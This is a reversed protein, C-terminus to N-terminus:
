KALRSRTRGRYPFRDCRASLEKEHPGYCSGLWRAHSGSVKAVLRVDCMMQHRGADTIYKKDLWSVYLQDTASSRRVSAPLLPIAAIMNHIGAVIQLTCLGSGVQDMVAGGDELVLTASEFRRVNAGLAKHMWTQFNDAGFTKERQGFSTAHMPIMYLAPAYICCMPLAEFVCPGSTCRKTADLLRMARSRTKEFVEPTRLETRLIFEIQNFFAARVSAVIPGFTRDNIRETDSTRAKGRIRGRAGGSILSWISVVANTRASEPFATTITELVDFTAIGYACERICDGASKATSPSSEPISISPKGLLLASLNQIGRLEGASLNHEYDESM